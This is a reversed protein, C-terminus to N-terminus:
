RYVFPLYLIHTPNGPEASDNDTINVQVDALPAGDFSKDASTVSHAVTASHDGEVDEDDVASLSVTQPLNWNAPTFTLTTVALDLQAGASLTVTVNSLPARDLVLTYSGAPGGESLNLSDTSATVAGGPVDSITVTIRTDSGLAAGEPASLDILVTENPDAVRDGLVTLTFSAQSAGPAFSLTGAPLSYDSDASASGGAVAYSVRTTAYPNPQSLRVMVPLEGADEAVSATTSEFAVEPVHINLAAAMAQDDDDLDPTDSDITAEIRITVPANLTPDVKARVTLSGSAGPALAAIKWAMGGGLVPTLAPGTSETEVEKLQSPLNLNLRVDNVTADGNNRYNLRYTIPQGPLLSAGDMEVSQTLSLDVAELPECWDLAAALLNELDTPALAEAPFGLYITRYNDTARAIAAGNGASGNGTLVTTAGGAPVLHDSYNNGGYSLSMTGLSDFPAAAGAVQTHGSDDTATALGLYGAMFPTIVNNRRAYLEQASLILCRGAPLWNSLMTESELSPVGYFGYGGFWIVSRYNRMTALTPEDDPTFGQWIDYGVGIADLADTYKTWSNPSSHNDDVLLVDVDDRTTFSFIPSTQGVGCGNIPTVRWYYVTGDSLVDFLEYSTSRVVEDIIADTFTTENDLEIRYATAQPSANWTITPVIFVGTAGDSPEFATPAAAPANALHLDVTDTYAKQPGTGSVILTSSGPAAGATNITLTSSSSTNVSSPNFSASAGAPLGSVSLEVPGVFSAGANVAVQATSPICVDLYDEAVALTCLPPLDFAESGDTYSTNLGADASYGLGRRAFAEWVLCQNAGQNNAVDAALIADRADTFNPNCPQLKLGDIVLQLALRNGGDGNILDADYGYREVLRWYVDWLMTAWVEGVDHPVVRGTNPNIAADKISDYTYPNVSMDTTYPYRRVGPGDAQTGMMWNGIARPEEATAGEKATLVLALFDSWGEGAQEDMVLCATNSPGGTLRTSLGHGYEHIIVGNDLSIDRRPGGRQMTANVTESNLAAKIVNGTELTTSLVAINIGGQAGGLGPAQLGAVNNVIIVGIAGANQANLAKVTFACVGRDILAIKGSVDNTIDECGDSLSSGPEGSVVGDNVLVVDGTVDFTQSGFQSATGPTYSDAISAPANVLLLKQSEGLYMQMYPQNGDPPTGFNANVVGGGDQAEAQVYDGGLGAGSYNTQQFNGAAEDFGFHFLLDHIRNNAYFLNTTAADVYTWPHQDLDVPYDFDLGPGGDPEDNQSQDSNIHDQYAHVNNGRTITYEPGPQGNTDHWGYPSATPDAPNEILTRDGDLPSEKPFEYVRYSSGDNVGASQLAPLAAPASAPVEEAGGHSHGAPAVGSGAVDSHAFYNVSSITQGNTADVRLSLWDQNNKLRLTMDWSLRVDGPAVPTYILRVPIPDHSIGGDSLLQTSDPGAAASITSLATPSLGLQGAAKSVAEVPALQPVLADAAAHLNPVFGNGLNLISGDAAVNVNIDGNFVEIGALRQRFYLHTIGNHASTYRNKLVIDLLDDKTLGLLRRERLIFDRAIDAPDGAAPGTLFGGPRYLTRGSQRPPASSGPDDPAPAAAAPTAIPALASVLLALLLALRLKTAHSLRSSPQAM